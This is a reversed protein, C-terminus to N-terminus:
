TLSLFRWLFFVPFETRTDPNQEVSTNAVLRLSYIMESQRQRTLMVSPLFFLGTHKMAAVGSLNCGSHLVFNISLTPGKKCFLLYTV